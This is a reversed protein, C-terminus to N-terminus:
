SCVPCLSSDLNSDGDDLLNLIIISPDKIPRLTEDPKNPLHLPLGEGPLLLDM